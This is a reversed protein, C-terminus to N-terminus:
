QNEHSEENDLHEDPHVSDGGSVSASATGSLTEVERFSDGSVSETELEETVHISSSLIGRIPMDNGSCDAPYVDTVPTPGISMASQPTWNKCPCLQIHLLKGRLYLARETQSQFQYWPAPSNTKYPPPTWGTARVTANFREVTEYFNWAKRAEKDRAASGRPFWTGLM